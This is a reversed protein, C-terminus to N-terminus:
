ILSSCVLYIEESNDDVTFWSIRYRVTRFCIFRLSVFRFSRFSLGDDVTFGNTECAIGLSGVM